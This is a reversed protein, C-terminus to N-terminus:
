LLEGIYERLTDFLELEKSDLEELDYGPATFFRIGEVYNPDCLERFTEFSASLSYVAPVRMRGRAQLSQREIRGGAYLEHLSLEYDIECSREGLDVFLARLGDLDLPEPFPVTTREVVEEVGM